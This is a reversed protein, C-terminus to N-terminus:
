SIITNLLEMHNLIDENKILRAADTEAHDALVKELLAKALDPNGSKYEITALSFLANDILEGVPYREIVETFKAKATTFDSKRVAAMGEM